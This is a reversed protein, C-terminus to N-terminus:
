WLIPCGRFSLGLAFCGALTCAHPPMEGRPAVGMTSNVPIITEVFYTRMRSVPKSGNMLFTKGSLCLNWCSLSGLCQLLYVRAFSASCETFQHGVGGSLGSQLGISFTHALIFANRRLTYLGWLRSLRFAPMLSNQFVSVGSFHWLYMFDNRFYYLLFSCSTSVSSLQARYKGRLKRAQICM